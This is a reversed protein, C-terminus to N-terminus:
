LYSIPLVVEPLKPEFFAFDLLYLIVSTIKAETLLVLLYSYIFVLIPVDKPSANSTAMAAIAVINAKPM